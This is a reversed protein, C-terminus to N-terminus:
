QSRDPIGGEHMDLRDPGLPGTRGTRGTTVTGWGLLAGLASRHNLKTGPYRVGHDLLNQRQERAAAQVATTGTKMPWIYLLRSRPPLPMADNLTSSPM